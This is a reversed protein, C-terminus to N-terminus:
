GRMFELGLLDHHPDRLFPEPNEAWAQCLFDHPTKGRLTKLRRRFNYAQVFQSLLRVLYAESAFTVNDQLMDGMRAGPSRTWPDPASALRHEIGRERCTRVFASEEGIAAFPAADLTFVRKIRCPNRRALAGLFDAAAAADGRTGMQVFVFKSAQEIANFFHHSGDSSRVQAHDIHVDGLASAVQAMETGADFTASLRNVGHRQLCRHLSSRSLHPM